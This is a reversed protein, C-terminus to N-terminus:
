RRRRRKKGQAERRARKRAQKEDRKKQIEANHAARKARQEIEEPSPLEAELVKQLTARQEANFEGDVPYDEAPIVTDPQELISKFTAELDFTPETKPPM